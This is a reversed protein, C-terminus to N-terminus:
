KVDLLVVLFKCQLPIIKGTFNGMFCRNHACLQLFPHHLFYLNAYFRGLFFNNQTDASQHKFLKIVFWAHLIVTNMQQYPYKHKLVKKKRKYEKQSRTNQLHLYDSVDQLFM